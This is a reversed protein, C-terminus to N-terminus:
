VSICIISWHSAWLLVLIFDPVGTLIISVKFCVNCQAKTTTKKMRHVRHQWNIQIGGKKNGKRYGRVNLQDIRLGCCCSSSILYEPLTPLEQGKMSSLLWNLKTVSLFVYIDARMLITKLIISVKFCV